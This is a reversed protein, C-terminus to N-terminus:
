LPYLPVHQSKACEESTDVCHRCYATPRQPGPCTSGEGQLVDVTYWCSKQSWEVSLFSFSATANLMERNAGPPGKPPESAPRGERGGRFYECQPRGM